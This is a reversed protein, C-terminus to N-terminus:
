ADPHCVGGKIVLAKAAVARVSCRFILSADFNLYVRATSHKTGNPRKSPHRKAINITAIM